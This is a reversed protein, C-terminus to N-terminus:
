AGAEVFGGAGTEGALLGEAAHILNGTDRAHVLGETAEHAGRALAGADNEVALAEELGAVRAEEGGFVLEAGVEEGVGVEGGPQGLLGADGVRGVASRRNEVATLSPLDGNGSSLRYTRSLALTRILRKQSWGDRKADLFARDMYDLTPAIIIGSQHHEGPEPLCTFKPLESLAVNMRFTGSGAKFGKVRRKFEPKLNAEDFM